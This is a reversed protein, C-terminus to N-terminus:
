DGKERRQAEYDPGIPKIRTIKGSDVTIDSLVGDVYINRYLMQM